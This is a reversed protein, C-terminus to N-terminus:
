SIITTSRCSATATPGSYPSGVIDAILKVQKICRTEFVAADSSYCESLFINCLDFRSPIMLFNMSLTDETGWWGVGMDSLLQDGM